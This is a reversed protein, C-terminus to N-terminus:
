LTIELVKARESKQEPTYHSTAEDFISKVAERWKTTFIDIQEENMMSFNPALKQAHQCGFFVFKKNDHTSSRHAYSFQPYISLFPPQSCAPCQPVDIPRQFERNAMVEVEAMIAEWNVPRGQARRTDVIAKIGNAIAKGPNMM